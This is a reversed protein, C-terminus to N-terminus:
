CQRYRTDANWPRVKHERIAYVSAGIQKFEEFVVSKPTGAFNVGISLAV